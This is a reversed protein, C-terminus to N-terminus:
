NQFFHGAGNRLLWYMVDPDSSAGALVKAWDVPSSNPDRRLHRRGARNLGLLLDMLLSTHGVQLREMTYNDSLSDELSAITEESSSPTRYLDTTPHLRLSKLVSNNRLIQKLLVGGEDCDKPIGLMTLSELRNDNDQSLLELIRRVQCKSLSCFSLDLSKLHRLGVQIFDNFGEEQRSSCDHETSGAINGGLPNRAVVLEEITKSQPLSQAILASDSDILDCGTLDLRRCVAKQVLVELCKPAISTSLAFSLVDLPRTRTKTWSCIRSVDEEEMECAVIHLSQISDSFHGALVSVHLQEPGEVVVKSGGPAAHILREKWPSPGITVNRLELRKLTSKSVLRQLLRKPISTYSALILSELFPLRTVQELITLLVTRPLEWGIEVAMLSTNQHIARALASYENITRCSECFGIRVRKIQNTEIQRRLLQFSSAKPLVALSSKLPDVLPRKLSGKM